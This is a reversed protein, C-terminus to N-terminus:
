LHSPSPAEVDVQGERGNAHDNEHEEELKVVWLRRDLLSENGNVPRSAQEDNATGEHPEESELESTHRERPVRGRGDTEDDETHESYADEHDVFPLNCLIGEDRNVEERRPIVNGRVSHRPSM